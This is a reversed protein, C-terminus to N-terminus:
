KGFGAPPAYGADTCATMMDLGMQAFDNANTNGAVIGEWFRSSASRVDTTGDKGEEAMRPAGVLMASATPNELLKYFTGCADKSNAQPDTVPVAKRATTTTPAATTTTPAQTAPTQTTPTQAITLPTLAAARGAEFGDKFGKNEDDETKPSVTAIILLIGLGIAVKTRTRMKKKKPAENNAENLETM